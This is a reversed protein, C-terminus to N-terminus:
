NNRSLRVTGDCLSAVNESSTFVVSTIGSKGLSDTLSGLTESDLDDFLGNVLLVRPNGLRAEALALRVKDEYSLENIKIVNEGYKGFLGTLDNEKLRLLFDEKTESRPDHATRSPLSGDALRLSASATFSATLAPNTVAIDSDGYMVYGKSCLIEGKLLRFLHSKGSGASGLVATTKGEPFCASLGKVIDSVGITVDYLRIDGVCPIEEERGVFLVSAKRIDRTKVFSKRLKRFLALSLASAATLESLLTLSLFLKGADFNGVFVSIGWVAFCATVYVPVLAAKKGKDSAYLLAFVFTLLVIVLSGAAIGELCAAEIALAAATFVSLATLAALEFHKALLPIEKEATLLDESRETRYLDSKLREALTPFCKGLLSRVSTAFAAAFLPLPLMFALMLLLSSLTASGGILGAEFVKPVAEPLLAACIATLAFSFCAIYFETKAREAVIEVANLFFTRSLRIKETM